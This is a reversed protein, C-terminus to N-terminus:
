NNLLLTINTATFSFTSASYQGDATMGTVLTTGNLESKLRTIFAAYTDFNEITSSAAHGIAFVIASTANPTILPDSSLGVLNITQPGIRIEHRQGIGTNRVDLDIASSDYTTFPATTGTGWDIVLEAQITTADLLSSATFDPPTVGFSSPMGTVQLPAGVSANTLDLSPTNISYQGAAAGTGVFDFAAVARGGLSVLGLTVNGSGQATVLGSAVTNGLRVRGASADLTLNGSNVLGATGFAAIASGVSIQQTSNIGSVGQGFETVSTNPGVTITATGALFEDTGDVGVLTGDEITVTNGSRASVIGTVRDFGAGQVSSGALVETAAFTLNTSTTTTGDSATTSADASTLSGYAVMLTGAGITGLSALGGAGTSARGNVEYITADTPAIALQGAGAATGDFPMVGSTFVLKATDVSVLPGRIRVQKADTSLASAAIMPTVTVTKATPNVVNSAGLKFDLALRSARNSAVSFSDAPDLNVTLQLQGLAQGGAGVPTLTIGNLSGDDYVIQAGSYDVTIVASTYSGKAVAAAGLVESVDTLKALDVATSSPLVTLGSGGGPSKLQVSVLAVRYALFVDPSATSTMTVVATGNCAALTMLALACLAVHLRLRAHRVAFVFISLFAKVPM